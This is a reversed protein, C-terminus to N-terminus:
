ASNTSSSIRIPGSARVCLYGKPSADPGQGLSLGLLSWALFTGM